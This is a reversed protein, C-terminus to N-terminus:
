QVGFTMQAALHFSDPLLPLLFSFARVLTPAFQSDAVAPTWLSLPFTAAVLLIVTCALLGQLLGLLGGILHDLWGLFLLGIFRRLLSALLSAVSSVAILVLAFGLVLALMDNSIFSSLADSVAGSYRSALVIGAILGVLALVQRILGWYVGLVGFLLAVITIIIDISNM